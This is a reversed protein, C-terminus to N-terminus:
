SMIVSLGGPIVSAAFPTQGDADGDLQVPQAPAASVRIDRGRFRRIKDNDAYQRMLGWVTGAVELVGEARLAVVDLVGDDFRIDPGLSLLPPIIMSCNAVLLMAAELELTKGDITVSFPTPAIEGVTRVVHGVYAAMGWRRKAEGRTRSMIDADYGAGCAVAFFRVGDDIELRGMDVRRPAGTAVIRAAARPDRPLGLNGALLNGTGGPVIGLSVAHEGIGAVAQMMTGDGGYVAVVDVREADVAERAIQEADGHCQTLAVEVVAGADRMVRVVADLTRERTRAAVPNRILLIRRKL